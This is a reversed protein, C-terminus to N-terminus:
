VELHNKMKIKQNYKKGVQRALTCYSVDDRSFIIIKGVILWPVYKFNFHSINHYPFAFNLSKIQHILDFLFVSPPFTLHFPQLGKRYNKTAMKCIQRM